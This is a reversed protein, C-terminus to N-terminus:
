PSVVVPSPGILLRAPDATTARGEIDTVSVSPGALPLSVTAQDGDTWVVYLDGQPRTFRYAWVGPGLDVREASQFGNLSNAVVRFATAAPRAGQKTVLGPLGKQQWELFRVFISLRSGEGAATVMLRAAEQAHATEDFAVQGQYRRGLEWAELPRDIGQERLWHILDPLQQPPGYYHVQLADYSHQHQVLLPLWAIVRAAVPDQFLAELDAETRPSRSALGGASEALTQQVLRLAESRQGAQYLDHARAIGLAASSLGSDLVIAQPDASKIVPYALDLLQFYSQPSDSWSTASVAENEIAYRRVRGRLHTVLATLFRTYEDPDQPMTSLEGQGRAQVHLAVELGCARLADVQSDLADWAYRGSGQDVDGQRLWLITAAAGDQRLRDCLVEAQEPGVQAGILAGEAQPAAPTDTPPPTPSELAPQTPMPTPQVATPSPQPGCGAVMAAAVLGALVGFLLDRKAM